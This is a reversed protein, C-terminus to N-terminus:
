TGDFLAMMLAAAWRNAFLVTNALANNKEAQTISDELLPMKQNNLKLRSEIIRLSNKHKKNLEASIPSQNVVTFICTAKTLIETMEAESTKASIAEDTLLDIVDQRIKVGAARLSAKFEGKNEEDVLQQVVEKAQEFECEITTGPDLSKDNAQAMGPNSVIILAVLTLIQKKMCIQIAPTTGVRFLTLVANNVTRTDLSM